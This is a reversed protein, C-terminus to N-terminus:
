WRYLPVIIFRDLGEHFEDIVAGSLHEGCYFEMSYWGPFSLGYLAFKGCDYLASGKWRCDLLVTPEIKRSATTTNVM